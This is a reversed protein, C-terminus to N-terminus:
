LEHRGVDDVRALEDLKNLLLNLVIEGQEQYLRFQQDAANFVEFFREAGRGEYLEALPGLSQELVRHRERLEELHRHLATVYSELGNHLATIDTM